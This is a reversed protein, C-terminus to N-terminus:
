SITMRCKPRAPKPLAAAYFETNGFSSNYAGIPNDEGTLAACMDIALTQDDPIAGYFRFFPRQYGDTVALVFIMDPQKFRYQGDKSGARMAALAPKPLPLLALYAIRSRDDGRMAYRPPGSGQLYSGYLTYVDDGAKFNLRKCPTSIKAIKDMPFTYPSLGMAIAAAM